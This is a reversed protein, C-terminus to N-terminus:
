STMCQYPYSTSVPCMYQEMRFCQLFMCILIGLTIRPFEVRSHTLFLPLLFMMWVFRSFPKMLVLALNQCVPLFVGVDVVPDPKYPETQSRSYLGQMTEGINGSDGAEKLEDKRVELERMRNITGARIKVMKLPQSGEKIMRGESRMWNEATKLSVVASRSYVPEGRFKGLETTDPPHIVQNQKLHRALVYRYLSSSKLYRLTM